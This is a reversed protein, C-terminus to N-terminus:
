PAARGGAREVARDVGGGVAPPSAGAAPVEAIEAGVAGVALRRELAQESSGARRAGSRRKTTAPGCYGASMAQGAFTSRM